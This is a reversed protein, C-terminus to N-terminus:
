VGLERRLDLIERTTRDAEGDIYVRRAQWYSLDDRRKRLLEHKDDKERETM